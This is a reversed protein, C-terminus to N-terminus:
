CLCTSQPPQCGVNGYRVIADLFWDELEPLAPMEERIMDRADDSFLEMICEDSTDIVWSHVALEQDWDKFTHYLLDEVYYYPHRLAVCPSHLPLLWKETNDMRLWARRFEKLYRDTNALFLLMMPFYHSKGLSQVLGSQGNQSSQGPMMVQQM